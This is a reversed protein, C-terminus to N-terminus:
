KEKLRDELVKLRAKIEMEHEIYIRVEDAADSAAKTANETRALAFAAVFVTILVGALLVAKEGKGMAEVHLMQQSHPHAQPAWATSDQLNM